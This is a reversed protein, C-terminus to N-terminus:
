GSIAAIVAAVAYEAIRRDEAGTMAGAVGIGAIVAGDIVVPLGGAILALGPRTAFSAVAAPDDKIAQFFDDPPMGIAVAAYAKSTATEISILPAGDMRSLSKVTGAEDLVAVTVPVDMASAEMHAASLAAAAWTSTLWTKRTTRPSTM